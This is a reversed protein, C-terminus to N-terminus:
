AKSDTNPSSFDRRESVREGESPDGDYLFSSSVRLHPNNEKQREGKRQTKYESSHKKEWPIGLWSVVLEAVHKASRKLSNM